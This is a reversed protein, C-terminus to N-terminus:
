QEEEKEKDAAKNREQVIELARNATEEDPYPGMRDAAHTKKGQEAKKTRLNFYWEESM